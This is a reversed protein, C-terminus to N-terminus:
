AIDEIRANEEGGGLVDNRRKQAAMKIIICNTNAASSLSINLIGIM